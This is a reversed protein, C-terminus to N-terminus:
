FLGDILYLDGLEYIKFLEEFNFIDIDYVGIKFGEVFDFFEESVVSVVFEYIIENGEEDWFVVEIFYNQEECFEM